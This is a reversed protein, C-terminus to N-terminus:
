SCCCLLFLLLVFIFLFFFSAGIVCIIGASRLRVTTEVISVKNPSAGIIENSLISDVVAILFCPKFWSRFDAGVPVEDAVAVLLKIDITNGGVKFLDVVLVLKLLVVVVIDDFEDEEDVAVIVEVLGDM